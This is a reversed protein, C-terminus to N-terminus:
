AADAVPEDGDSAKPEQEAKKRRGGKSAKVAPEEHGPKEEEAELPVPTLDHEAEVPEPVSEAKGQRARNAAAVAQNATERIRNSVRLLRQRWLYCEASYQSDGRVGSLWLLSILGIVRDLQSLLGLYRNARPTSIQVDLVRPKTFHIVPEIGSDECQKELRAIEDAYHKQLEDLQADILTEVQRAQEDSAIARLVVTILYLARSTHDWSREYSRQAQHSGLTKQITIVARTSGANPRIKDSM